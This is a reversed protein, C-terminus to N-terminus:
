WNMGVGFMVATCSADIEFDRVTTLYSGDYDHVEIPGTEAPVTWHRAAAITVYFRKRAPLKVQAGLWFGPALASGYTERERTAPTSRVDDLSPGAFATLIGNGSEAAGLVAYSTSRAAVFLYKGLSADSRYGHTEGLRAGAVLARIQLQPRLRYGVAIWSGEGGAYTQPHPIPDTCWIFCGAPTTGDMGAARMAQEVSAASYAGVNGFGIEVTWRRVPRATSEQPEQALASSTATAASLVLLM